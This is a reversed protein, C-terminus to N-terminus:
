ACRRAPNGACTGAISSWAYFTAVEYGEALPIRLEDCLAALHRHRIEGYRDQIRHLHEILLDRSRPADGLLRQVEAAAAPDAHREVQPRRSKKSM